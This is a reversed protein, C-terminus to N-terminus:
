RQDGATTTAADYCRYPYGHTSAQHCPSSHSTHQHHTAEGMNPTHDNGWVKECYGTMELYPASKASQSPAPDCGPKGLEARLKLVFVPIGTDSLPYRCWLSVMGMEPFPERKQPLNLPEWPTPDHPQKHHGDGWPRGGYPCGWLLPFVPMTSIVM